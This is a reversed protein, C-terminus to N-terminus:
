KRGGFEPIEYRDLPSEPGGGPEEARRRKDGAEEERKGAEVASAEAKSGDRQAENRPPASAPADSATPERRAFPAPNVPPPAKTAPAAKATDPASSHAAPLPAAGTVSGASGAGPAVPAPAASPVVASARDPGAAPPENPPPTPLTAPAPLPELPARVAEVRAVVEQGPPTVANPSAESAARDIARRSNNQMLWFGTGLVAVCLLGAFPLGHRQWSGRGGHTRGWAGEAGPGPRLPPQSAKGAPPTSGLRAEREGSFGFERFQSATGSGAFPELADCLAAVDQFREARDQQLCRAIVPELDAVAPVHDRLPTRTGAIVARVLQPVSEGIFPLAGTVLEYLIVGLSWIDSRGDVNRSSELQEPSMYAPSGMLTATDTISLRQPVDNASGSKSIGFDLVKIMRAGNPRDTLFLNAPKLDRHVIGHAHAEGVAQCAQLLYRVAEGMPLSGRAHIERALDRGHLYEMVIYPINPEDLLGVDLVRAVHENRIRAAARAERRFREAGHANAALEPYLFKVAVQQELEIHWAAVVVGMAGAGVVRDIRYKDALVDGPALPPQRTTPDHMSPYGPFTV